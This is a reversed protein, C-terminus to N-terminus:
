ANMKKVFYPKLALYYTEGLSTAVANDLSAVIKNIALKSKQVRVGDFTYVGEANTFLIVNGCVSITNSLM